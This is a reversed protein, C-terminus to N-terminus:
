RQRSHIRSLQERSPHHALYDNGPEIWLEVVYPVLLALDVMIFGAIALEFAIRTRRDYFTPIHKPNLAM